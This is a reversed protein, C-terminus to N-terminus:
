YTELVHLENKLEKLDRVSFSEGLKSRSTMM